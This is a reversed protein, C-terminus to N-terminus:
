IDLGALLCIPDSMLAQLIPSPPTNTSALTCVELQSVDEGSRACVLVVDTPNITMDEADESDEDQFPTISFLIQHELIVLCVLVSFGSCM